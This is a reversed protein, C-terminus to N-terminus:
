CQTSAMMARDRSWRRGFGLPKGGTSRVRTSLDYKECSASSADQAQCEACRPSLRMLMSPIIPPELISPIPSTDIRATM